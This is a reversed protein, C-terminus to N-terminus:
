NRENGLQHLTDLLAEIDTSKDFFYTSGFINATRRYASNAYNSFMIVTPTKEYTEITSLIDFGSGQRLNIDLTIIDPELESILKIADEVKDAEGIVQLGEIYSIMKKLDERLLSSDDVILVKKMNNMKKTPFYFFPATISTVHLV